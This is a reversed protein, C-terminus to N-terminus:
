RNTGNTERESHHTELGIMIQRLWFGRAGDILVFFGVPASLNRLDNVNLTHNKGALNIGRTEDALIGCTAPAALPTVFPLYVKCFHVIEGAPIDM